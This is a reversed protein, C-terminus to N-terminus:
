YVSYENKECMYAGMRGGGTVTMGRIHELLEPLWRKAPKRAYEWTIRIMCYGRNYAKYMKYKDIEQTKLPDKWNMVQAFHQGGDLEILIKSESILFDFPLIRDTKESRCWDFRVNRQVVHYKSLIDFFRQEGKLYCRPCWGGRIINGLRSSFKHGLRCIFTAKYGSNPFVQRPTRDNDEESWFPTLETFAAFSKNFCRECDKKFNGM